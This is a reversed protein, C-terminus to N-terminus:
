EIEYELAGFYWTSILFFDVSGFGMTRLEKKEKLFNRVRKNIGEGQTYMAVKKIRKIGESKESRKQYIIVYMEKMEVHIRLKAAM